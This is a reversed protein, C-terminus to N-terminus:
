SVDIPKQRVPNPSGSIHKSSATCFHLRAEISIPIPSYTLKRSLVERSQRHGSHLIAWAHEPSQRGTRSNANAKNM